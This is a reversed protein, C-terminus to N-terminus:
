YDVYGHSGSLVLHVLNGKLFNTTKYLIAYDNFLAVQGVRQLRQPQEETDYEQRQRVSFSILM